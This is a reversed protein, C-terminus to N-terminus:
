MAKVKFGQATLKKFIPVPPTNGSTFSLRLGDRALVGKNTPHWDCSVEFSHLATRDPPCCRLCYTAAHMAARLVHDLDAATAHFLPGHDHM